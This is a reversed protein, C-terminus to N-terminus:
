PRSILTQLNTEQTKSFIWGATKVGDKTLYPNFRGGYQKLTEKIDRTGEGFLAVAKESYNVLEIKGTSVTQHTNQRPEAKHQPKPQEPTTQEKVWGSFTDTYYESKMYSATPFDFNLDPSKAEIKRWKKQRAEKSFKYAKFNFRGTEVDAEIKIFVDGQKIPQKEALTYGDAILLARAAEKIPQQKAKLEAAEKAWREIRAKEEVKLKEEDAKLKANIVDMTAGTINEIVPEINETKVAGLNIYVVLWFDGYLNGTLYVGCNGFFLKQNINALNSKAAELHLKYDEKTRFTPSDQYLMFDTSNHQIHWRKNYARITQYIHAKKKYDVAQWKVGISLNKNQFLNKYGGIYNQELKPFYGHITIQTQYKFVPVGLSELLELTAGQTEIIDLTERTIEKSGKNTINKSDFNSLEFLTEIKKM